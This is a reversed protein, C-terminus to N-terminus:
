AAGHHRSFVAGREDDLRPRTPDLERARAIERCAKYGGGLVATLPADDGDGRRGARAWVGDPLQGRIAPRGDGHEVVLAVAADLAQRRELEGVVAGSVADHQEALDAAIAANSLPRLAGPRAQIRLSIQRRRADTMHEHGRTPTHQQVPAVTGR